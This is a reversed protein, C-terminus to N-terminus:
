IGIIAQCNPCVTAIAYEGEAVDAVLEETGTLEIKEAVVHDIETECTPCNAMPVNEDVIIILM